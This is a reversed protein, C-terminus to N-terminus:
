HAHDEIEKFYAALLGRDKRGKEAELRSSADVLEPGYAEIAAGVSGVGLGGALWLFGRSSLAEALAPVIATGTGGSVGEVRADALIRPEGGRRLRDIADLDAASGVRVAAYRGARGDLAADLAAIAASSADGHWQIADLAGERALSLARAARASDLETVVGVLLPQGGCPAGKGAAGAPGSAPPAAIAARVARVTAEDAARPSDAFVFGLLDAGLGAAALADETRALGCIKVLPRRRRPLSISNLMLGRPAGTGGPAGPAEPPQQGRPAGTGRLAAAARADLRAAIKRWFAGAADEKAGLFGDVVEAIRGPNKAAAEGVLIGDFGLRRAYAAAGASDIGSEYVARGPLRARAAAPILPDIAFTALDRANVGSLVPGDAAASALKAYDAEERVEIFATMGFSRAAAAMRRLLGEDLIRAILLVADAGARYSLEVEDERLLFDKRLFSLGPRAAAAAALDDLSGKFYRRETLVSVNRAGAAAYAAALAAPDLDPAIDGKSPSARKIELIAGPAALFPVLPRSRRAPVSGGFAPGRVELDRLRDAVIRELIDAM